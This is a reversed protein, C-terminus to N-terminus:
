LFEEGSPILRTSKPPNKQLYQKLDTVAAALSKRRSQLQATPARSLEMGATAIAVVRQYINQVYDRSTTTRSLPLLGSDRVTEDGSLGALLKYVYFGMLYKARETSGSTQAVLQDGLDAAARGIHYAILGYNYDEPRGASRIWGLAWAAMARVEPKTESSSLLKLAASSYEAKASLPNSSSQRLSGIAEIARLQIWWPLEPDSALFDTVAQAAESARQSALDTKGSQTLTTLGRLAWLKVVMLQEPNKLEKLMLPLDTADAAKSLVIMAEIRAYLNNNLIPPLAERLVRRYEGLFAANKKVLAINLPALLSSTAQEIGKFNRSNPNIKGSTDRLADFYETRTLEAANFKIYRDLLARDLPAGGEAMVRVTNTDAPNNLRATTTIPSFKKGLVDEAVPDVFVDVSNTLVAAKTEPEQNEAAAPDAKASAAEAGKAKATPQEVKTEPKSKPSDGTAQAYAAGPAPAFAVLGAFVLMWSRGLRQGPGFTQNM